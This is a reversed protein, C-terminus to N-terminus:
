TSASWETKSDVNFEKKEYWIVV